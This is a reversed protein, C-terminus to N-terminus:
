IFDSIELTTMNKYLDFDNDYKMLEACRKKKREIDSYFDKMMPTSMFKKEEKKLDCVDDTCKGEIYSDVYALLHQKLMHKVTFKIWQPHVFLTSQISELKEQESKGDVLTFGIEKDRVMYARARIEPYLAREEETLREEPDYVISHQYEDEDFDDFNTESLKEELALFKQVDPNNCISDESNEFM